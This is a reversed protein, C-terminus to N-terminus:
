KGALAEEPDRIVQLTLNKTEEWAYLKARKLAKSTLDTRAAPDNYLESLVDTINDIDNPDFYVAADGLVEPMAATNSSAIPAGCAMAEVLPNGFTEVTSPFVFIRCRGYLKKLENVPVHGLFEVHEDLHQETILAKLVAFYEADVPSGAVKLQIDPISERLNAIARILAIFNKQVYIDSVSLLFKDRDDNQNSSLYTRDVGHPVVVMRDGLLSWFASQIGKKAYSSVAIARRCTILSFMTALYLLVWYALKVPRREVFGVSVANRILIVHNKALFPGYNAPSFTADLGLRRVLRPLDIQERFLVRWFGRRYRQVHYIINSLNTPLIETQDEHLCVHVELGDEENLLPLMNHLYTVGGGSRAHLANVLLKFRDPSCIRRMETTLGDIHNNWTFRTKARQIGTKVLQSRRKANRDLEIIQSALDEANGLEFFVAADGCIERHVPIDSVILPVGACMAEVMPFGFTEAMSPFVFADFDSLVNSLAEHDIRGMTLCEDFKSNTMYALEVSANDWAAFDSKEMTIRTSVSIGQARLLLTANALTTPDKHPYYVSVYLLRITGDERWERRRAPESFRPNVGLYNVISNDSLTADYDLAANMAVESPFITTRSHRASILMLNRRLIASVRERWSLNPLVRERYIPNLYIEGQVLLMQPIPPFLVGYNASSFVLDAGSNKIIRRWVFQEWLFRHWPGYFRTKVIQVSVSMGAFRSIDFWRPVYVIVDIERTAFFEILNNTYTVIGGTNASIANVIVRM